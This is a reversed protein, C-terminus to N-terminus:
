VGEPLAVPYALPKQGSIFPCSVLLQDRTNGPHAVSISGRERAELPIIVFRGIFFDAGATIFLFFYGTLVATVALCGRGLTKILGPFPRMPLWPIYAALGSPHGLGHFGIYWEVHFFIALIMGCPCSEPHDM